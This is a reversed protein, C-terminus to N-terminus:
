TRGTRYNAAASALSREFVRGVHLAERQAGDQIQHRCSTGDAIVLTDRDAQRVSPLLSLDAMRMSVDFHDLGHEAVFITHPLYFFPAMGAGILEDSAHEPGLSRLLVDVAEPYERPLHRALARSIHRGRDLLELADLGATADRVFRDSPFRRHAQVIEAALRRILATSFFTKLQDAM